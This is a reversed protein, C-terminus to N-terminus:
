RICFNNMFLDSLVKNALAVGGAIRTSLPFTILRVGFVYLTVSTFTTALIPFTYVTKLITSFVKCSKKNVSDHSQKEFYTSM